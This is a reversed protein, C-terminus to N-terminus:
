AFPRTGDSLNAAIILSRLAPMGNATQAPAALAIHPEKVDAAMASSNDLCILNHDNDIPMDFQSLFDEGLVGRYHLDIAHPNEFDFV